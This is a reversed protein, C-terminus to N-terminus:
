EPTIPRWFTKLFVDRRGQMCSDKVLSFQLIVSGDQYIQSKIKYAGPDDCIGDTVNVQTGEFSFTGRTLPSDSVGALSEAVLMSGDENFQLYYAGDHGVWVGLIDEPKDVQSTVPKPTPAATPEPPPSMAAIADMLLVTSEETMTAIYGTIKGDQISVVWDNDISDVGIDKLSDDTYNLLASVQDGDVQVNSIEGAGHLSALNEYWEQIAAKGSFIGDHDEMPPPILQIVADDTLLALAAEVDGANQADIFGQLLAQAQAVGMANMLNTMSEDTINDTIASIKGDQVIYVENYELPAVDLQRTPDVWTRLRAKVIDGEIELLDLEMEFNMAVLEEFVARLEEQGTLVGPSGPPVPPDVTFVIDDTLLAMAADIDGNNLAKALELVVQEPPVQTPAACAALTILFVTLVLIKKM